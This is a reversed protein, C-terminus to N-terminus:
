YHLAVRTGIYRQLYSWFRPQLNGYGQAYRKKFFSFSTPTFIIKENPTPAPACYCTRNTLQWSGVLYTAPNPGSSKQCGLLPLAVVAAALAFHTLHKKMPFFHPAVLKLPVSPTTPDMMLSMPWAATPVPVSGPM